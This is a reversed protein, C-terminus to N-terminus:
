WPRRDRYKNRNNEIRGYINVGDALWFMGGFNPRAFFYEPLYEQGSSILLPQFDSKGLIVSRVFQPDSDAAWHYIEEAKPERTFPNLFSPGFRVLTGADLVVYKAQNPSSAVCDKGVSSFFEAPLMNSWIKSSPMVHSVLWQRDKFKPDFLHCREVQFVAATQYLVTLTVVTLLMKKRSRKRLFEIVVAIGDGALMALYPLFILVHRPFNSSLFCIAVAQFLLPFELCCFRSLVAAQRSDYFGSRWLHRWGILAFFIGIASMGLLLDLSYVLPNLWCNYQREQFNDQFALHMGELNLPVMRGM